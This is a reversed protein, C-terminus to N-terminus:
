KKIEKLFQMQLERTQIKAAKRIYYNVNQKGLKMKKCIQKQSIGSSYMKLIKRELTSASIKDEPPIPTNLLYFKKFISVHIFKIEGDRLLRHLHYDITNNSKNIERGMVRFTCGPNNKIFSLITNRTLNPKYKKLGKKTIIKRTKRPKKRLLYKKTYYDNLEDFQATSILKCEDRFACVKKCMRANFDYKGLCKRQFRNSIHVQTGLCDQERNGEISKIM